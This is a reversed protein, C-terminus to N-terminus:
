NDIISIFIKEFFEELQVGNSLLEKCKDHIGDQIRLNLIEYNNSHILLKEFSDSENRRKKMYSYLADSIKWFVEDLEQFGKM